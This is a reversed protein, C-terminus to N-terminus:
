GGGQIESLTQRVYSTGFWLRPIQASRHTATHGSNPSPAIM